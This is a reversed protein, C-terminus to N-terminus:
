RWHNFYCKSSMGTGVLCFYVIFGWSFVPDCLQVKSESGYGSSLSPEEEEEEEEEEM